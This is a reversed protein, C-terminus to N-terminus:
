YSGIYSQSLELSAILPCLMHKQQSILFIKESNDEFAWKIKLMAAGEGEGGGGIGGLGCVCCM